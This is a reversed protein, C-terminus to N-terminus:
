HRPFPLLSPAQRRYFNRLHERQAETYFHQMLRGGLVRALYDDPFAITRKFEAYLQGWPERRGQNKHLIEVPRGIFDSVLEDLVKNGLEIQVLLLEVKGLRYRGWGAAADFELDLADRGLVPKLEQELWRDPRDHNFSDFYLAHLSEASVGTYPPEIGRRWLTEFFGSMNRGISERVPTVVKLVPLGPLVKVAFDLARLDTKLVRAGASDGAIKNQLRGVALSHAKMARCGSAVMAKLLSSTGVKGMSFVLATATDRGPAVVAAAAPAAAPAPGFRDRVHHRWAGAIHRLAGADGYRLANVARAVPELTVALVHLAAAVGRGFHKRAYRARSRLVYLLRRTKIQTTSGGGTHVAPAGAVFLSKWGAARARLSFDLDEYYVFFQEDFGGLTAFLSRRVLMFAGMVQDVVRSEGHDSAPLFHGPVVGPLLRDLGLMHAAMTWPGPFRACSRQVHGAADRLQVGVIGVDPPAEALHRVALALTRPGVQVDPNLFLIFEADGLAAGQNCAAAFGRNDPNLVALCDSRASLFAPSGDRSGNDVVITSRLLLGDRRSRQIANLCRAVHGRSNWNVIVIDLARM